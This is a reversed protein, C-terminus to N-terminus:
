DDFRALVINSFYNFNNMLFHHFWQFLFNKSGKEIATFFWWGEVGKTIIKEGGGMFFSEMLVSCDTVEKILYKLQFLANFTYMLDIWFSHFKSPFNFFKFIVKMIEKLNGGEQKWRTNKVCVKESFFCNLFNKEDHIFHFTFVFIEFLAKLYFRDLSSLSELYFFRKWGKHLYFSFFKKSFSASLEQSSKIVM